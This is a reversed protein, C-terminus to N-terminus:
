QFAEVCMMAHHLPMLRSSGRRFRYGRGDSVAEWGQEVLLTYKKARVPTLHWRGSFMQAGVGRALLECAPSPSEIMVDGKVTPSPVLSAM